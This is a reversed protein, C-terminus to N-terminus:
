EGLSLSHKLYKEIDKALCYLECKEKQRYEHKIIHEGKIDQLVWNLIDSSTYDILFSELEIGHCVDM